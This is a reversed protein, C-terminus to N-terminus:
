LYLKSYWLSVPHATVSCQYSWQLGDTLRVIIFLDLRVEWICCVILQLDILETKMNNLYVIGLERAWLIDSCDEYITLFFVNIKCNISFYATAFDCFSTQPTKAMQRSNSATLPSCYNINKKQHKINQTLEVSYSLVFFCRLNLVFINKDVQSIKLHLSM